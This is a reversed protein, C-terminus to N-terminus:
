YGNAALFEAMEPWATGIYALEGPYKPRQYSLEERRAFARIVYIPRMTDGSLRAECMSWNDELIQVADAARDRRLAVVARVVAIIAEVGRRPAKKAPKEAEAIWTEATELDGLLAFLLALDISSLQVLGARELSKRDKTLGHLQLDRAEELEGECMATWALDHRAIAALAPSPRNAAWYAFSERARAFNGANLADHAERMERVFARGHRRWLAKAAVYPPVVLPFAVLMPHHVLFGVVLGLAESGILMGIYQEYDPAWPRWRVLGAM